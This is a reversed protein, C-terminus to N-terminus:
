GGGEVQQKYADFEALIRNFTAAAKEDVDLLSRSEVGCAARVWEAAQDKNHCPEGYTATIFHRFQEDACFMGAKQSTKYPHRKEPDQSAPMDDDGLKVLMMVFRQGQEMGRLQEGDEVRTKLWPGYHALRSFDIVQVECCVAMFPRLDEIRSPVQEPQIM